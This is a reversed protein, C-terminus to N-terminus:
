RDESLRLEHEEFLVVQHRPYPVSKVRYTKAKGPSLDVNFKADLGRFVSRNVSQDIVEIELPEGRACQADEAVNVKLAARVKARRDADPRLRYRILFDLQNSARGFEPSLRGSPNGPYDVITQRGERDVGKKKAKRPGGDGREVFAAGLLSELAPLRESPADRTESHERQFGYCAASTRDEIAKVFEAGHKIGALRQNVRSWTDHEAPESFKLAEDVERDALFFGVFSLRKETGFEKYETIMGSTARMRAVRRPGPSKPHLPNDFVSEDTALTLALRGLQKGHERHFTRETAREM